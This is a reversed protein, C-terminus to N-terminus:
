HSKAGLCKLTTIRGLKILFDSPPNTLCPLHWSTSDISSRYFYKIDKLQIYAFYHVKKASHGAYLILSLIKQVISMEPRRLKCIMATCMAIVATQNPRSRRTKTADLLISLLTPAYKQMEHIVDQFKFRTLEEKMQCQFVSKRKGSCLSAVESQVVKGVKHIVHKRILTLM